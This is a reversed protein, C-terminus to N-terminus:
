STETCHARAGIASVSPWTRKTCKPGLSRPLSSSSLTFSTFLATTLLPSWLVSWAFHVGGFTCVDGRTLAVEGLILQSTGPISEVSPSRPLACDGRTTRAMSLLSSRQLHGPITPHNPYRRLKRGRHLNGFRSAIAASRTGHFAIPEHPREHGSGQSASTMTAFELLDLVKAVCPLGPHM